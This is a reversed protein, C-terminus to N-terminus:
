LDSMMLEWNKSPLIIDDLYTSLVGDKKLNEFVIGMMKQFTGPAGKLGFPMREFKATSEETVFATKDKAAPTLPVQLFGNSLDLVTFIVGHSLAGLQSDVDPMPYPQNTTQQNLRRYDVCLRKEGSSKSVLLVPSAYQSTSDSVIGAEKWDRITDAILRRDSPSTRYPKLSVPTSDPIETIDMSIVNTCGLEKINKAFADRYENLLEVLSERQVETVNTDFVVDDVTIPEKAPPQQETEAVYIEDDGAVYTEALADVSVCSNSEFVIEGARKSYNVHPLDLWTRGVLVDVPIANDPVVKLVHDAGLVDDITVDAFGEGITTASPQDANGVTYLPCVADRVAIGCEHAISIRILVASSGSDILGSVAHGNVLVTKSFPNKPRTSTNADVRYAHDAASTGESREAVEPCRGRTHQNSNCNSCKMPRRPKPCDRSIHGAGRCNYCYITPRGRSADTKSEPVSTSSEVVTSSTMKPLVAPAVSTSKASSQETTFRQKRPKTSTPGAAEFKEKRKARMREWDRIDSLLDDHHSHTRGYVWDTLPQSRLGEIVYERTDAFTLDLSHCMGLKAYFYDITLENPEQTRAELERWLDAKRLTRVFTTRFRQVFTDWDRFEELLFWSRAAQSINSRVYQLRHRLPWQNVQATGDVSSIWDEAQTSSEHGTFSWISTGVDPLIRYDLSSAASLITNQIPPQPPQTHQSSSASELVQLRETLTRVAEILQNYTPAVPTPINETM